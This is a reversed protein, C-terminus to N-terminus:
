RPKVRRTESKKCESCYWDEVMLGHKDPGLSHSLRSARAGCYRCVEPPWKGGLKEELSAVRAKLDDVDDPVNQLRKWIPVRDLAKLIDELIGM